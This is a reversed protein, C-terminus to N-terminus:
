EIDSFSPQRLAETASGASQMYDPHKKGFPWDLVNENERSIKRPGVCMLMQEPQEEDSQAEICFGANLNVGALLHRIGNLVRRGFFAFQHVDIWAEFYTLNPGVFVRTTPPDARSPMTGGLVSKSWSDLGSEDLNRIDLLM